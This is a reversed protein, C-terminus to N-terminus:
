IFKIYHFIEKKTANEKQLNEDQLRRMQTHIRECRQNYLNHRRYTNSTRWETMQNTINIHIQTRWKPNENDNIHIQTRWKLTRSIYQYTNAHTMQYNRMSGRVLCIINGDWLPRAIAHSLPTTSHSLSCTPMNYIPLLRTSQSKGM